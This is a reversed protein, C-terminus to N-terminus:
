YIIVMTGLWCDSIVPIVPFYIICALLAHENKGVVLCQDSYYGMVLQIVLTGFFVYSIVM